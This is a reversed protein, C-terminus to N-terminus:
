IFLESAIGDAQLKGKKNLTYIGNEKNFFEIKKEFIRKFHNLFDDGFLTKIDNEDCGWITRLRTLIYENYSDKLQLIEKEYYILNNKIAKVYMHNNKINWQRSVGDFSHASPGYGIYKKQLWYNSNHRAFYGQKGFNSIEYQIYNAKTLMEFMVLFQQSSLVDNIAPEVGKNFNVGLKTKNEITLNYSSIHTTNLDIAQMLTNKWSKLTQFKSGYILDITINKFGCKQAMKVCSVSENAGHARNMWKLEDDNFSQLGISLRNIGLYMWDKLSLETIDDPNAEITIEIDKEWIYVRKLQELIDYINKKSLLSPTGGGFYISEIKKDILYDKRLIIENLISFIVEEKNNLSTSFYFDCYNCAQKCFPIHIYIGAM